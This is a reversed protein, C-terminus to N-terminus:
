TAPRNEGDLKKDFGADGPQHKKTINKSTERAHENQAKSNQKNNDSM